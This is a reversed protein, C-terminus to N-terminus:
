QICTKFQKRGIKERTERTSTHQVNRSILQIRHTPGQCTGDTQHANNQQTHGYCLRLFPVYMLENMREACVRQCASESGRGVRLKGHAYIFTCPERNQKTESTIDDTYTHAPTVQFAPMLARKTPMSRSCTFCSM